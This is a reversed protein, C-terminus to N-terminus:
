IGSVVVDSFVLSPTILNSYIWPDNAAEALKKWFNLHNDAINMEAITQVPAGNDFLHGNIGISFDGSNSNSNGGIFGTILVGRGLDQMIEQISRKGPPLLLNSPGGTTPEVNLKRSYYWDIYFEKLIGAEIMTRKKGAIGDGDYLSSGLGEVVLPDDILTFQKSGISQGVKDALFSRKQQIYRGSMADLLGNLVQSVNENRIIIPLTETKIKKAGMLDLTRQAAMKGIEDTAPLKKRKRGGAFYYGNPRRDGEDQVTMQAGIWCQTGATQGSFGNSTMLTEETLEDYETSTVSIVKEGGNALCAAEIERAIEHRKEANLAAYDPDITQLDISARGQYYKAEPLSRSPDRELQKTNEIANKIFSQLSQQRLDSTSQSSYKQDVFIEAQVNKTAAEQVMDPKKERYSIEVFRRKTVKVKCADAGATKAAKIIWECLEYNNNNM